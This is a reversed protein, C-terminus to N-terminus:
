EATRLFRSTTRVESVAGDGLLVVEDERVAVAGLEALLREADAV